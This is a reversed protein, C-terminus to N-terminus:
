LLAGTAPDFEPGAPIGARRMAAWADATTEGTRIVLGLAHAMHPHDEVWGNHRACLTVLNSPLWQGGQGAKRLHHPTLRGMCLERNDHQALVCEHGDRSYVAQVVPEAAEREAKRDASVATLHRRRTLGKGTRRMPSRKV